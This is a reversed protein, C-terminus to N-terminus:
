SIRGYLEIQPSATEPVARLLVALLLMLRNRVADGKSPNTKGRVPLCSHSVSPVVSSRGRDEPCPFHQFLLRLSRILSSRSVTKKM